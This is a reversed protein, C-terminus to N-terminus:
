PKLPMDVFWFFLPSSLLNKFHLSSIIIKINPHTIFYNVFVTKTTHHKSFCVDQLSLQQKTLKTRREGKEPFAQRERGHHSSGTIIGLGGSWALRTRSTVTNIYVHSAM